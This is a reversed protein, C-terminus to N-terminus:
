VLARSIASSIMVALPYLGVQGADAALSSSILRPPAHKLQRNREALVFLSLRM